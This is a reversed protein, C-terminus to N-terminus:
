YPDSVRATLVHRRTDNEGTCGLLKENSATLAQADDAKNVGSM